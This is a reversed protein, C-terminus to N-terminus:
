TTLHDLLAAVRGAAGFRFGFGEWALLEESLYDGVPGPYRRKAEFAAARLRARDHHSAREATGPTPDTLVSM